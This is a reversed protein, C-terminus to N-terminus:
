KCVESARVQSDLTHFSKLMCGHWFDHTTISAPSGKVLHIPEASALALAALVKVVSLAPTWGVGIQQGTVIVPLHSDM